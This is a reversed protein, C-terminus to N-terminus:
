NSPVTVEAQNSYPSEVNSPSLAVVVYYYVKGATVTVDTYSTGSNVSSNLKTYGSGSISSRYVFYGLIKSSSPEWKLTVSENSPATVGSGSLGVKVASANRSNVTLTGSNSAAAKPDFNISYTESQGPELTVSSGSSGLTFGTGAVTVSSVDAKANGTNKVTVSKTASTGVTEKGFSLSTPSASLTVVSSQGNGTLDIVMSKDTTATSAVTIKGSVSGSTTPKFAATFNESAGPALNFPTKVGSVTVNSVSPALTSVTIEADGSNALRITQTSTTGLAVNGFSISSPTATLTSSSASTATGSLDIAMSGDSADSFISVAGSLTGASIPKYTVTLNASQGAALTKPLSLGSVSVGSGAFTMGSITIGGTSTLQVMKTVASGVTVSGFGISAPAANLSAITAGEGALSVTMTPEVADSAITIMGSAPSDSTPKFVVSIRSSQGSSLALPLHPGSATFGSGTVSISSIMLIGTGGNTLTVPKTVSQGITLAGFIISSPSLNLTLTSGSTAAGKSTVGVCGTTSLIAALVLIALCGRLMTELAHRASRFSDNM